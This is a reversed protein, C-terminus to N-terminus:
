PRQELLEIGTEIDQFKESLMKNIDQLCSNYIEPGLREAVIDIIDQAAIVGVKDGDIEEVRTVVEDICQKRTTDDKIDWKRNM